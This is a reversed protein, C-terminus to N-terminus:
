RRRRRTRDYFRSRHGVNWVHVVQHEDDITYSARYDGVRLRWYGRLDGTLAQAATPRPEEALAEFRKVLRRRVAPHLDALDELVLNDLIVEYSL